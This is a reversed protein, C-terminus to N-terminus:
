KKKTEKLVLQEAKYRVGKGKYCEPPRIARINAATQGLLQKDVGRLVIETNSPLDATVTKPLTYEVPHSFGLSLVLTNGKAQARYGVGVLELALDFGDTVGRVMNNVLARMTGAQAWAGKEEVRPEFTLVNNAADMKVAVYKHCNQVLTGKPGKVSVANEEIHVEVNKPVNVPAKAIRSM